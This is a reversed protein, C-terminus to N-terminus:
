GSFSDEKKFRGHSMLKNYVFSSAGLKWLDHDIHGFINGLGMNLCAGHKYYPCEKMSISTTYRTLKM